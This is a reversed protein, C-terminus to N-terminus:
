YGATFAIRCSPHPNRTYGPARIVAFTNLQAVFRLILILLRRTDRAGRLSQLLPLPTSIGRDHYSPARPIRGNVRMRLVRERVSASLWRLAGRAWRLLSIYLAIIITILTIIVPHRAHLM